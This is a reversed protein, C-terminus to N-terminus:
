REPTDEIEKMMAMSPQSLPDSIRMLFFNVLLCIRRASASNEAPDTARRSRLAKGPLRDHVSRAGEM